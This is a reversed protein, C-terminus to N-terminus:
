PIDLFLIFDSKNGKEWMVWIFSVHKSMNTIVWLVHLCDYFFYRKKSSTKAIQVGTSLFFDPNLFSPMKKLCVKSFHIYFSHCTLHLCDNSLLELVCILGFWSYWWLILLSMLFYVHCLSLRPFLARRPKDKQKEDSRSPMETVDQLLLVWRGGRM